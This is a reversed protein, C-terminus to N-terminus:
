NERKKTLKDLVEAIIPINRYVAMFFLGITPSRIAGHWGKYIGSCRKCLAVRPMPRHQTHRWAQPLHWVVTPM